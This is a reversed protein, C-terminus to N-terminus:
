DRNDVETSAYRPEFATADEEDDSDFSILDHTAVEIITAMEETSTAGKRKKLDTSESSVLMRGIRKGNRRTKPGRRRADRLM